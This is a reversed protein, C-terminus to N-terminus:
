CIEENFREEVIAKLKAIKGLLTKNLGEHLIELERSLTLTTWSATSNISNVVGALRVWFIISRYLPLLPIVWWSEMAYRRTDHQTNTLLITVLLYLMSNFVYLGYLILNSGILIKIPYGVFYLYIIGFMWILRPFALTHDTMLIRFSERSFFHGIHGTHLKKYLNAVELQGRQWRQRQTYMRDVGEIPDVYFFCEPCLLVKMGASQKVQFTMDTDEGVTDFNYMNTRIISSRKFASCAGALTYMANFRSAINRGVLFSETYEYMECRQGLRLLPNKTERILKPDILVVGTLAGVKPDSQFKTIIARIGDKHLWGDSDINMIYETKSYTIGLNLAKAKGAHTDYWWTKLAPYRHKFDCFIDYSADRKQQNNLLRIEIKTLDYNQKAISELCAGITASSNYVPILISITPHFDLKPKKKSLLRSIILFLGSLCGAGIEWLLPILIWVGWFLLEDRLTM